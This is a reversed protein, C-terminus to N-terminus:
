CLYNIQFIFDTAITDVFFDCFDAYKPVKISHKNLGTVHYKLYASHRVM